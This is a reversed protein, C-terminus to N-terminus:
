PAAAALLVELEDRGVEESGCSGGGGGEADWEVVWRDHRTEGAAAKAFEAKVFEGVVGRRAAGGGKGKGRAAGKTADKVGCKPAAGSTAPRAVPLGVLPQRYKWLM